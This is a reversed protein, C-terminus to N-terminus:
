AAKCAAIRARKMENLTLAHLATCHGAVSDFVRCVGYEDVTVKVRRRPEGTFPVALITVTIDNTM